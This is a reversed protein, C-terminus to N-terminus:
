SLNCCCFFAKPILHWQGCCRFCCHLSQSPRSEYRLMLSPFQTQTQVDPVSAWRAGLHVAGCTHLSTPAVQGLEASRVGRKPKDGGFFPAPYKRTTSPSSTPGTRRRPCAYSLYLKSPSSASFVTRSRASRWKGNFIWSVPIFLLLVPLVTERLQALFLRAGSSLTHHSTITPPPSEPCKLGATFDWDSLSVRVTSQCSFIVPSWSWSSARGSSASTGPQRNACESDERGWRRRACKSRKEGVRELTLLWVSALQVGRSYRTGMGTKLIFYKVPKLAAHTM